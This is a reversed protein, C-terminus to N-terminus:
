TMVSVWELKVGSQINPFVHVTMLSINYDSCCFSSHAICAFITGTDFTLFGNGPSLVESEQFRIGGPVNVDFMHMQYM